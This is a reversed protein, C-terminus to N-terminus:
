DWCKGGDVQRDGLGCKRGRLQGRSRPEDEGTDALFERRGSNGMAIAVNRRLGAFKARRIPSGRFKERFEEASMEALWDLAPNVLGKSGRFEPAASAASQPEVPCVDQCIDCGFVHQGMGARLEEPISGRKEITLYSICRNSDLSTPSSFRM